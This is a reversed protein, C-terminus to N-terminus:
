GSRTGSRTSSRRTSTAARRGPCTSRVAMPTSGSTAAKPAPARRMPTGADVATSYGFRVDGVANRSDAVETFRLNAVASWSALASRVAAQNASSLAEFGNWPEGDGNSAGYGTNPDTSWFSSATPFSFSVSHSLWQTGYVLANANADGAFSSRKWDSWGTPTPM